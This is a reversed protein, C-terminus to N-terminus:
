YLKYEQSGRAIGDSTFREVNLDIVHRFDRADKILKSSGIVRHILSENRLVHRLFEFKNDFTKLDKCNKFLTDFSEIWQSSREDGITVLQHIQHEPVNKDKLMSIIGVKNTSWDEIFKVTNKM